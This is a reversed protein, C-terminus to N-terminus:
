IDCSEPPIDKGMGELALASRGEEKEQRFVQIARELEKIRAAAPKLKEIREQADAIALDWGNSTNNNNKVKKKKVNYTM